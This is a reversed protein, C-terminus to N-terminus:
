SGIDLREENIYCTKLKVGDLAACKIKICSHLM